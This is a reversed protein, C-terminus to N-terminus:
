RSEELWPGVVKIVIVRELALVRRDTQRRAGQTDPVPAGNRGQHDMGLASVNPRLILVAAQSDLVVLWPVIM